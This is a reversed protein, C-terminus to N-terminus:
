RLTRQSQLSICREGIGAHRTAPEVRPYFCTQQGEPREARIVGEDAKTRLKLLQQLAGKGMGFRLQSM